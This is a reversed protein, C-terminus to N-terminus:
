SVYVREARLLALTVSAGGHWGNEDTEARLAEDAVHFAESILARREAGASRRNAVVGRIAEAATRGSQARLECWSGGADFVAFLGLDRDLLLYDCNEHANPHVGVTTSGGARFPVTVCSGRPDP